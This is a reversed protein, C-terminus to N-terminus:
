SGAYRRAATVEVARNRGERGGRWTRKEPQAIAIPRELLNVVVLRPFFYVVKTGM